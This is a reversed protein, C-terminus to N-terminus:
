RPNSDRERRKEQGLAIGGLTVLLIGTWQLVALVPRPSFSWAILLTALPTVAAVIATQSGILRLSSYSFLYVLLMILGLLIGWLSFSLWNIAVPQLPKIFLVISSLVAVTSFQVISVPIPHCQQQRYSLNTLVVYLSFTASALVGLLIASPTAVANLSTSAAALPHSLPDALPDALSGTLPVALSGGLANRLSGIAPRIALIGGMAIAVMALLGLPSMKREPILLAGLPVATLPYLFLLMAGIAPGVLGICQYILADAFFLAVGSGILLTLLRDRNYVWDQLDEWTYKYLQPALLGLSPLMVLMRLWLLAVAPVFGTGLQHIPLWLWQGGQGLTGIVCFHWAMLIAAIASLGVGKRLVGDDWQDDAAKRQISLQRRQESTAPIPLEVSGHTTKSPGAMPVPPEGPLRPMPVLLSTKPQAEEAQLTLEEAQVAEAQVASDAASDVAQQEAQLQARAQKLAAIDTQLKAKEAELREIDQSLQDSYGRQLKELPGLFTAPGLLSPHSPAQADAASEAASDTEPVSEAALEAALEAASLSSSGTSTPSPQPEDDDELAPSDPQM